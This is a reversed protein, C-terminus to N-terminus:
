QMPIVRVEGIYSNNAVTNQYHGCGYLAAGGTIIPATMETASFVQNGLYLSVGNVNQITNDVYQNGSNTQTCGADMESGVSCDRLYNKGFYNDNGDVIALAYSSCAAFTNGAIVNNNDADSLHGGYLVICTDGQCGQFRNGQILNHNSGSQLDIANTFEGAIHLGGTARIPDGAGVFTLNTITSNSTHDLMITSDTANRTALPNHLTVLNNVGAFYRNSPLRLGHALYTGQPLVVSGQNLAAQICSSTDTAGDNPCVPTLAGAPPPVPVAAVPPVGVPAQTALQAPAPTPVAAPNTNLLANVDVPISALEKAAQEAGTTDVSQGRSASEGAGQQAHGVTAFSLAILLAWLMINGMPM